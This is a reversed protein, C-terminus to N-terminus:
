RFMARHACSTCVLYPTMGEDASRTQLMEIQATREGCRPCPLGDCPRSCAAEIYADVDTAHAQFVNAEAQDGIELRLVARARDM